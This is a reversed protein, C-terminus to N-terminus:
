INSLEWLFLGEVMPLGHCALTLAFDQATHSDRRAEVVVAISGEIYRHAILYKRGYIGLQDCFPLAVTGVNLPYYRSEVEGHLNQIHTHVIPSPSILSQTAPPACPRASSGSANTTRQSM